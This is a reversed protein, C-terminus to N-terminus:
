DNKNLRSELIKLGNIDLLLYKHCLIDKLNLNRVETGFVKEINRTGKILNKEQDCFGIVASKINLKKLLNSIEKTKPKIPLFDEIIKIEGDKAKKTLASKLANLRMKKPVKFEYIKENRPGFTVGGGKWLPSRISGHRARGTGKQPWPKKGGGRVEGRTKTHAWPYHTKALYYRWVQHILSENYSTNFPFEIEKVVEGQLNYVPLKM